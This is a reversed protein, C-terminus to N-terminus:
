KKWKGPRSVGALPDGNKMNKAINKAKNKATKAIQASPDKRGTKKKGETPPTKERNGM